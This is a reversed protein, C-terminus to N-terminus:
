VQQLHTQILFSHEDETMESLFPTSPPTHLQFFPPMLFPNLSPDMFGTGQHLISNRAGNGGLHMTGPTGLELTPHLM